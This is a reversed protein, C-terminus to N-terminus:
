RVLPQEPRRTPEAGLDQLAWRANTDGLAAARQMLAVGLSHDGPTNTALLMRGRMADGSEAALACWYAADRYDGAMEAHAMGDACLRSRAPIEGRQAAAVLDDPPTTAAGASPPPGDRPEPHAAQPVSTLPSANQDRSALWRSCVVATSAALLILAAVLVLRLRISTM